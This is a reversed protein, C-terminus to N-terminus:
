LTEEKITLTTKVGELSKIIGGRILEILKSFENYLELVPTRSSIRPYSIKLGGISVDTPLFAIERIFIHYSTLLTVALKVLNVDPIGNLWYRYYVYIEGEVDENLEIVGNSADVSKINTVEVLVNGSKKYVKIDSADVDWDFDTDAIPKHKVYLRRKDELAEVRELTLQSIFDLTIRSAIAIYNEVVSDDLETLGSLGRYEQVTLWVM